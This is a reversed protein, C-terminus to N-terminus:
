PCLKILLGPTTLTTSCFCVLCILARKIQSQQSELHISYHQAAALTHCKLNSTEAKFPPEASPSLNPYLTEGPLIPTVEKAYRTVKNGEPAVFGASRSCAHANQLNITCSTKMVSLLLLFHHYSGLFCQSRPLWQINIHM